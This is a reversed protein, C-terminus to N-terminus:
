ERMQAAAGGSTSLGETSTGDTTADDSTTDEDDPAANENAIGSGDATEDAPPEQGILDLDARVRVMVDDSSSNAPVPRGAYDVYTVKLRIRFTTETGQRPAEFTATRGRADSFAVDPGAQVEWLYNLAGRRSPTSGSGDLNVTAGADVTQDSGARAVAEDMCASISGACWLLGVAMVMARRVRM